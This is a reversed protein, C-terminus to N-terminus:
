NTPSKGATEISSTYVYIYARGGWAGAGNETSLCYRMHHARKEKLPKHTHIYARSKEPLTVPVRHTHIYIPIQHWNRPQM